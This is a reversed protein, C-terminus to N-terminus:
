DVQPGGGVEAGLKAVLGDCADEVFDLVQEFGQPPGYYPDPVEATGAFRRAYALLLEVRARCPQPARSNLEDYHGQDMALILDFRDFDATAFRRARLNSLDYGRKSAHRQSRPDPADGVHYSSTGASAVVIRQALGAAGLKARLVAEATPSRCINGTCVMLVRLADAAAPEARRSLPWIRIPM